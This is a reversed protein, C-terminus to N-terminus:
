IQHCFRKKSKVNKKKCCKKKVSLFFNKRWFIKKRSYFFIRRFSFFNRFFFQPSFVITKNSCWSNKRSVLFCIQTFSLKFWPPVWPFFMWGQFVFFFVSHAAAGAVSSLHSLPRVLLSSFRELHIDQLCLCATPSERPIEAWLSESERESILGSPDARVFEAWTLFLSDEFLPHNQTRTEREAMIARATETGGACRPPTAHATGVFDWSDRWRDVCISPRCLVIVEKLSTVSVIRALTYLCEGHTSSEAIEIRPSPKM